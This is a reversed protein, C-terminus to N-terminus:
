AVDGGPREFDFPMLSPQPDILRLTSRAPPPVAHLQCRRRVPQHPHHLARELLRHPGRAWWGLLGGVTLIFWFGTGSM